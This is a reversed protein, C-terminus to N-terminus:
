FINYKYNLNGKKTRLKLYQYAIGDYITKFCTNQM